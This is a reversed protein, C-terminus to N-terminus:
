PLEEMRGPHIGNDPEEMCIVGAFEPDVEIICLALFTGDSLARVPLSPGRGLRAKLTLLERRQDM